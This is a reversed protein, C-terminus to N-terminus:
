KAHDQEYHRKLLDEGFDGDFDRWVAHIHNNNNQTNDYELLFTPGQVRYYHGEGRELGGYWSFQIKDPGGAKQIKKLDADALEPRYRYVYAKILKLLTDNQERTLKASFIGDPQLAEVKRKAATFIDAPATTKIIAVKKQDDTLSKVLARALDEEESLVRLGKRPGELVEAPNSGLFSPTVAIDEGNVVTLNVSVHHGEVRWGWTEKGGPRGFVFFHYLQPDRPFKRAAGELEFLIPELSMINTAKNYGSASLGSKLLAHALPRQAPTMEKITLGKREKPIFHWNHREDDKFDFTAKAKQADDLSALFKNAAAAMENAVVGARAPLSLFSTTLLAVAVLCPRLTKM